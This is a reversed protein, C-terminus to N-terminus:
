PPAGGIVKRRPYALSRGNLGEEPETRFCWDPRPNGISFLYGVPIHYWIWNDRGGAELVLVRTNPDASLRNALVCGASGAGIVIYDYEGEIVTTDAMANRARDPLICAACYLPKEMGRKSSITRLAVSGSPRVPRSMAIASPRMAATSGRIAASAPRTM